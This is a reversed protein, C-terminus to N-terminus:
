LKANVFPVHDYNLDRTNGVNRLQTNDYDDEFTANQFHPASARAESYYCSNTQLKDYMSECLRNDAPLYEPSRMHQQVATEHINNTPNGTEKEEHPLKMRKEKKKRGTCLYWGAAMFAIVLLLCVSCVVSIIITLPNINTPPLSGEEEAAHQDTVVTNSASSSTSNHIYYNASTMKMKTSSKPTRSCTATSAETPEIKLWVMAPSSTSNLTLLIYSYPSNINTKKQFISGFTTTNEECKFTVGNVKLSASSCANVRKVRLRADNLTVSIKGKSDIWCECKTPLITASENYMVHLTDHFTRNSNDCMNMVNSTKSDICQFEIAVSYTNNTQQASRSPFRLNACREQMSCMQHLELEETASFEEFTPNNYFKYAILDIMEGHKCRTTNTDGYSMGSQNLPIYHFADYSNNSNGSSILFVIMLTVLFMQKLVLM